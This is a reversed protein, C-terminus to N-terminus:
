VENEKEEPYIHEVVQRIFENLVEKASEKSDFREASVISTVTKGNARMYLTIAEKELFVSQISGLQFETNM